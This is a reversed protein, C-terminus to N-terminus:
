VGELTGNITGSTYNGTACGWRYDGAFWNPGITYTGAKTFTIATGTNDTVPNTNGDSGRRYLNLTATFTGSLTLIGGKKITLWQGFTNAATIVDQKNPVFGVM